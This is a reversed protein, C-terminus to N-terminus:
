GASARTVLLAVTTHARKAGTPLGKLLQETRVLMGIMGIFAARKLATSYLTEDPEELPAPGTRAVVYRFGVAGAAFFQAIFSVLEQLADTWTILPETPPQM